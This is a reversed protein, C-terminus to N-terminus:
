SSLPRRADAGDEIETGADAMETGADAQPGAVGRRWPWTGTLEVELTFSLFTRILVIGGLVVLSDITPEIAVTRIIDGAVLIELGLLISRGINQRFGRYAEERDARSLNRLAAGGALATGLVIVAVGVLDIILGLLDIAARADM